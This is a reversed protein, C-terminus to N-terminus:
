FFSCRFHLKKKTRKQVKPTHFFYDQEGKNGSDKKGTFFIIGTGTSM